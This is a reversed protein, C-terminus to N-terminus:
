IAFSVNYDILMKAFIKDDVNCLAIPRYGTVHLLKQKGDTKPILITHTRLFSPPLLILRM